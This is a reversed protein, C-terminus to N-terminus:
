DDKKGNNKVYTHDEMIDLMKPATRLHVFFVTRRRIEFDLQAWQGVANYIVTFKVKWQLRFHIFSVM